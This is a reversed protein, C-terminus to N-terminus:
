SLFSTKNMKQYYENKFEILSLNLEKEILNIKELTLQNLQFYEKLNVYLFSKIRDGFWNSYGRKYKLIFEETSKYRFHIIYAKKINIPNVEEIEM